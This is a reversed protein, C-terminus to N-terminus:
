ILIMIINRTSYPRIIGEFRLYKHLTQTLILIKSVELSANTIEKLEALKAM